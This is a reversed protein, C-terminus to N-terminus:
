TAKRTRSWYERSMTRITAEMALVEQPAPEGDLYVRRATASNVRERQVWYRRGTHDIYPGSVSASPRDEYRLRM